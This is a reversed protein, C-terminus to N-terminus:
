SPSSLDELTKLLHHPHYDVSSGIMKSSGDENISHRPSVLFLSYNMICFGCGAPGALSDHRPSSSFIPFSFLIFAHVCLSSWHADSVRGSSWSGMTAVQCDSGSLPLRSGTPLQAFDDPYSAECCGQDGGEGTSQCKVLPLSRRISCGRRWLEIDGMSRDQVRVM